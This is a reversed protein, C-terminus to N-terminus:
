VYYAIIDPLSMKSVVIIPIECLPGMSLPATCEWLAHVSLSHPPQKYIAVREQVAGMQGKIFM